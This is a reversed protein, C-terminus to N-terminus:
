FVPLSRGIACKRAGAKSLYVKAHVCVLTRVCVCVCVCAFAWLCECVYAFVHLM